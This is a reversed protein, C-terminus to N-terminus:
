YIILKSKHVFQCSSEFPFQGFNDNNDETIAKPYLSSLLNLYFSISKKRTVRPLKANSAM